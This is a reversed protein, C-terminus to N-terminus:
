LKQVHNNYLGAGFWLWNQEYYPLDKNFSNSDNSYLRLIKDQYVKQALNPDTVMFAGIVTSYMVPNESAQVVQGDHSYTSALKGDKKYANALFQFSQLYDKARPEKNWQYDLSIRWPIRMADFGYNTTLNPLNPAQLAGTQRNIAVWDPPLGVAHDKDLPEQGVQQLLDYSPAILSNWAHQKDVEAFIRWAYPAFYSPNLVLTNSDQAWNGAILYRKGAATATEKQWLDTLLPKAADVYKQDQWRRAALILALAVDSDADSASNEGGNELLGYTGDQKKGWHWALLHDNPRKLDNKTWNWVLDFTQKDDIWVARLMAYSQGESTTVANQSYDIVRGDQNIFRTKYNEWSANLLSYPSFTRTQMSFKSNAYLVAILVFLGLVIFIYGAINKM